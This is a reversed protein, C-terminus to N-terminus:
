EVADEADNQSYNELKSYNQDMFTEFPMQTDDTLSFEMLNGHTEDM